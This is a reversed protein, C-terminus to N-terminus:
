GEPVLPRTLAADGLESDGAKFGNKQLIYATIAWLQDPPVSGPNTAPMNQHEFMYLDSVPKKGWKALFAPGVLAPGAAGQLDPRHCQACQNNFFQHGRTAQAQTFWGDAAAATQALMPVGLAITVTVKVIRSVSRNILMADEM